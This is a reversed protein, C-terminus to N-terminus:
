CAIAVVKDALGFGPQPTRRKQEIQECRALLGATSLQLAEALKRLTLISEVVRGREVEGVYSRNLDAHESLLEQSWGKEERFQRVAAGFSDVFDGPVAPADGQPRKIVQGGKKPRIPAGCGTPPGERQASRHEEGEPRGLRIM